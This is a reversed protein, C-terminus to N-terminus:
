EGLRGPPKLRPRSLRMAARRREICTAGTRDCEASYDPRPSCTRYCQRSRHVTCSRDSAFWAQLLLGPSGAIADLEWSIPPTQRMPRGQASKCGRLNAPEQASTPKPRIPSQRSQPAASFFASRRGEGDKPARVAREGTQLGGATSGTM